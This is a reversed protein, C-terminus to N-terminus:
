PGKWGLGTQSEILNSTRYTLQLGKTSLASPCSEGSHVNDWGSTSVQGVESSNGGPCVRIKVLDFATIETFLQVNFIGSFLCPVDRFRGWFWGLGQPWPLVVLPYFRLLVPLLGKRPPDVGQLTPKWFVACQWGWLWTEWALRGACFISQCLCPEYLSIFAQICKQLKRWADASGKNRNMDSRSLRQALGAPLLSVVSRGTENKQNNQPKARVYKESCTDKGVVFSPKLWLTKWM